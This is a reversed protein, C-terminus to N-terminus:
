SLYPKDPLLEQLLHLHIALCFRLQQTTCKISLLERFYSVSIRKLCFVSLLSQFLYNPTSQGASFRLARRAGTYVQAAMPVQQATQPHEHQMNWCRSLLLAHGPLSPQLICKSAIRHKHERCQARGRSVFPCSELSTMTCKGSIFYYSQTKHGQSKLDQWISIFWHFVDLAQYNSQPVATQAQHETDPSAEGTAAGQEM